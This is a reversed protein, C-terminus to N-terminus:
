KKSSFTTMQFSANISAIPTGHEEAEHKSQELSPNLQISVSSLNIILPMNALFSFFQALQHYGGTVSLDYRNEVYYERQIDPLPNFRNTYIGSARAVATIERILKPIEKQDPFMSKLSDLRVSAAAIDSELKKLQPKLVQIQNLENQKKVLEAKLNNTEQRIEVFVFQYWLAVSVVAVGVIILINRVHPNKLNLSKLNM